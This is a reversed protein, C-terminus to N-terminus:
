DDEVKQLEDELDSLDLDGMRDIAAQLTDEPLEDEEIALNLDDDFADDSTELDDFDMMDFEELAEEKGLATDIQEQSIIDPSTKEASQEKSPELPVDICEALSHLLAQQDLCLEKAAPAESLINQTNQFIRNLLLEAQPRDFGELGDQLDDDSFFPRHPSKLSEIEKILRRKQLKQFFITVLMVLALQALLIVALPTLVM